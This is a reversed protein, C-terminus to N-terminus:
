LAHARGYGETGSFKRAEWWGGIAAGLTMEDDRGFVDFAYLPIGDFRVWMSYLDPATEDRRIEGGHPHPLGHKRKQLVLADEEV